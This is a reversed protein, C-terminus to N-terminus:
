EDVGNGGRRRHQIFWHMAIKGLNVEKKEHTQQRKGFGFTFWVRWEIKKKAPNFHPNQELQPGNELHGLSKM